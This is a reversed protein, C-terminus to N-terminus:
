SRLRATTSTRSTSRERGEVALKGSIAPWVALFAGSPTFSKIQNEGTVSVYVVGSPAVAVAEPGVV